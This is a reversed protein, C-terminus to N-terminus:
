DQVRLKEFGESQDNNRYYRWMAGTQRNVLYVVGTSTPASLEYRTTMAGLLYAASAMFVALVVASSRIITKQMDKDSLDLQM